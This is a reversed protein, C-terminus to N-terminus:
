LDRSSQFVQGRESLSIKFVLALFFIYMPPHWLASIEPNSEALYFVPHGTSKLASGGNVFDVEEGTFDNNLSLIRASIGLFILIVVLIIVKKNVM